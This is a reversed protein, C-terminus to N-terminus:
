CPTQCFLKVAMYHEKQRQEFESEFTTLLAVRRPEAASQQQGVTGRRGSISLLFVPAESCFHWPHQIKLFCEAYTQIKFYNVFKLYHLICSGTGEATVPCPIVNHEHQLLQGPDWASGLAICGTLAPCPPESSSPIKGGWVQAEREMLHRPVGSSGFHQLM